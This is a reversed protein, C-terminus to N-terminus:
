VNFEHIILQSRKDAHEFYSRHDLYNIIKKLCTSDCKFIM